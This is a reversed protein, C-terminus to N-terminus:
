CAASDSPALEERERKLRARAVNRESRCRIGGLMVSANVWDGVGVLPGLLLWAWAPESRVRARMILRTGAGDPQLVFAWSFDVARMPRLLHRTSHLVLARAPELEAVTFFVSGDPSDPVVDGPELDQLEPRIEDASRALIGWQVRDLWHPTYWGARLTPYGMQVIWPWVDEPPAAISTARTSVWHPKAVIDDGPLREHTEATTAGSRRGVRLVALVAGAAVLASVSVRRM